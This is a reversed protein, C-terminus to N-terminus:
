LSDKENSEVRAAFFDFNLVGLPISSAENKFWKIKKNQIIFYREQFGKFLSPSYKLLTGSMPVRISDESSLMKLDKRTLKQDKLNQFDM